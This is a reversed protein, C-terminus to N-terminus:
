DQIAYIFLNACLLQYTGGLFLPRYTVNLNYTKQYRYLAIFALYSYPSVVDYFIEIHPFKRLANM